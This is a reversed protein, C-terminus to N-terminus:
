GEDGLELFLFNLIQRKENVKSSEYIEKARKAWNLVKKVTILRAKDAIWM